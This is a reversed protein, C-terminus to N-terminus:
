GAPSTDPEDIELSDLKRKASHEKAALEVATKLTM